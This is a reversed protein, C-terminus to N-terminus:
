YLSSKLKDPERKYKICACPKGDETIMSTLEIKIINSPDGSLEWGLIDGADTEKLGLRAFWDNLSIYGFTGGGLAESNLDNCAKSVANWNSLFYRGSLPEYFLNNGDGAIIVQNGGQYTKEIRKENAKDQIQEAKKEGVVEKTAEKFEQLATQSVTYATTLAAMRKNSIRNGAIICPVSAATALVVPVYYKWSLKFVEKPTIKDINKEKKYRQAAKITKYTGFIAWGTSFILGAIGVAMLIEPEHKCMFPKISKFPSQM